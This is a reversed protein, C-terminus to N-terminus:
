RPVRKIWDDMQRVRDADVQCIHHIKLTPRRLDLNVRNDPIGDLWGIAKPDYYRALWWIDDKARHLILSRISEHLRPKPNEFYADAQKLWKMYQKMTKLPADDHDPFDDLRKEQLLHMAEASMTVNKSGGSPLLKTNRGGILWLFSQGVDAELFEIARVHIARVGLTEFSEIMRRFRYPAPYKFSSSHKIRQQVLSLYHEAPNRLNIIVETNKLEFGLDTVLKEINFASTGKFLAEASIVANKYNNKRLQSQLDYIIRSYYNKQSIKHDNLYAQVMRGIDNESYAIGTTVPTHNIPWSTIEPYLVGDNLLSYRNNSLLHQITTTGTKHAGAHLFLTSM